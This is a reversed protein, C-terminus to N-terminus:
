QVHRWSYGSCIKFINLYKKDPFYNKIIDNISIGSDFLQRILRIDEEVLKSAHHSSGKRVRGKKAADRMNDTQTGLFLHLPNVCSPNDCTHCCFLEKPDQKHLLYSVRHAKLYIRKPWGHVIVGYGLKNKKGTWIWCSETKKVKKWFKQELTELKRGM